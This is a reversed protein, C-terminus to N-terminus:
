RCDINKNKEYKKGRLPITVKVVTGKGAEGSIIVEGGLHYTRERIGLLGFSNPKALQEEAIGKGNDRVTLLLRGASAKLSVAVRSANAHRVVNTLTEQFIRFIATSVESDAEIDEPQVVVKCLIGTRKQFEEAQWSMAAAIGLHDLMGPRLDMYIRKVTDMTMDVLRGMSETKSLLSKQDRPLQKSLLIIDTNLATLLQGLEDHLERAIHTREKERVSELHASLQRLQERSRELEREGQKRATIDEYTIVIGKNKLSEGIRAAHVLCAIERRDKRVCPFETNFTPNSELAEYLMAGMTEDDAESRYFNQTTKGVLEKPEWGFVTKVGDNAFIIKRNKLGIVAHPIAKLLSTEFAKMEAMKTRSEIQETIDMSNGLIARSGRYPIYTMTEMIWRIRGDRTVLRYEFPATRKGRLMETGLKMALKRDEPHIMQLNDMGILEKQSYGLMKAVIQNVFQFKGHQLVYVGAQSSNAITEYAEETRKRDTIDEYTVVINKEKLSDGIRSASIMCEIETGDKHMCAFETKFTRQRELTSYLIKAIEEYAEETPYLVRTAQGILDKAKWGFVNQVGDNAFSILRNKLGIVAHPFADLISAELAELDVLKNRAEIQETIEMSTGLVARQGRFLIPTVTETFWRIEGDKTITRFEYSSSRMGKLMKIASERVRKRDDPHVLSMSTAGKQYGWYKSAHHNVFAFKGDQIVYFGSKSSSELSRYIGEDFHCDMEPSKVKNLESRLAELEQVLQAKSKRLDNMSVEVSKLQEFERELGFFRPEM